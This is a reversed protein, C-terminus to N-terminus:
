YIYFSSYFDVGEERHMKRIRKEWVERPWIRTPKAGREKM